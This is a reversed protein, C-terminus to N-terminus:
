PFFLCCFLSLILIQCTCASQCGLNFYYHTFWLVDGLISFSEPSGQIDRWTAWNLDCSQVITVWWPEQNRTLSKFVSKLAFLCQHGGEDADQWKFEFSSCQHKAAATNQGCLSKKFPESLWYSLHTAGSFRREEQTGDAWGAGTSGAIATFSSIGEQPLKSINWFKCHKCLLTCM